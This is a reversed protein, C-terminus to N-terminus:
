AISQSAIEAAMDPVLWGNKGAAERLGDGWAYFKASLYYSDNNDGHNIHEYGARLSLYYNTSGEDDIPTWSYAKAGQVTEPYFNRPATPPNTPMEVVALHGPLNTEAMENTEPAKLTTEAPPVNTIEPVVPARTVATESTATVDSVAVTNTIAVTPTKPEAKAPLPETPRVPKEADSSKKACSVACAVLGALAAALSLPFCPHKIKM